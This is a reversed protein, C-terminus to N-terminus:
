LKFNPRKKFDKKYIRTAKKKISLWFWKNKKIAQSPSQQTYIKVFRLIDSRTLGVDHSSYYLAALDKIRYRLPVKKKIQARHLDILYCPQGQQGKVTLQILFHCLYLDQHNIGHHHLLYTMQAVKSILQRKYTFDQLELDELSVMHALEKTILFSSQQAPNCGKKGFGVVTMTDIGIKHLAKIALYENEAGLIPRKLQLWNKLIETWGVGAHYKIFYFHGQICVRKTQRGNIDRYVEGSLNKVQNFIDENSSHFFSAISPDLVVHQSM